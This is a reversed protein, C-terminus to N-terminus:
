EDGGEKQLLNRLAEIEEPKLSDKSEILHSLIPALSGLRIRGIFSKTESAVADERSIAPSYLYCKGEVTYTLAEKKVLRALLTKITQPKWGEQAELAQIVEQSKSPSSKWIVEMVKWESDSIRSIAGM